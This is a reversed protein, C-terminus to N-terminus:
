KKRRGRKAPPLLEQKRATTVWRKATAQPVQNLEAIKIVGNKGECEFALYQAAVKEYFDNSRKPRGIPEDIDAFNRIFASIGADVNRSDEAFAVEIASIPLDRLNTSTLAAGSELPLWVVASIRDKMEDESRQRRVLVKQATQTNELMVWTSQAYLRAGRTGPHIVGSDDTLYEGPANEQSHLDLLLAADLADQRTYPSDIM